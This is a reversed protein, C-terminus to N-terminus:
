FRTMKNPSPMDTNVIENFNLNYHEIFNRRGGRMPLTPVESPSLYENPIHTHDTDDEVSRGRMAQNVCEYISQL